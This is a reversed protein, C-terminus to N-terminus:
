WGLKLDLSLSPEKKRRGIVGVDNKRVGPQPIYIKSGELLTNADENINIAERKKEYGLRLELSLERESRGIVGCENTLRAPPVFIQSGELWKKAEEDVFGKNDRSDVIKNEYIIPQITMSLHTNHHYGSFFPHRLAELATPRNSPDWSLLAGILSLADSSASRCFTNDCPTFCCLVASIKGPFLPRLNYLEAMIAGMAWMDIEPGYIGSLLLVEPARYWRTTTYETYPAASNIDRALGLDAIKIVNDNDNLLLNDPKLDRHFCGSDHMYSLGFFLQFCWHKIAEESLPFRGKRAMVQSLNCDMYEFVMFLQQHKDQFLERLKIINPHKFKRLFKVERLNLSQNLSGCHYKLKKIAVTDGSVNHIAKYVVGYSGSGIKGLLKYNNM